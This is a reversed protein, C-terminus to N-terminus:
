SSSRSARCPRRRLAGLGIPAALLGLYVIAIAFGRRMRRNLYNVPGSLAVAIFLAILLNGIPKRLLYIVYLCLVVVVVILVTRVVARVSAASVV